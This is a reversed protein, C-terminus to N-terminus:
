RHSCQCFGRRVSDGGFQIGGGVSGGEQCFEEAYERGVSGAGDTVRGRGGGWRHVLESISHPLGRELHSRLFGAVGDSLACPCIPFM